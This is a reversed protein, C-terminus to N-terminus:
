RRVEPDLVRVDHVAPQGTAGRNVERSGVPVEEELIDSLYAHKNSNPINM